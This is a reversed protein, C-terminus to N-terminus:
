TSGFTIVPLDQKIGLNCEQFVNCLDFLFNGKLVTYKWPTQPNVAEDQITYTHSVICSTSMRLQLTHIYEM